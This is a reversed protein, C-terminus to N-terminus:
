VPYVVITIMLVDVIVPYSYFVVLSVSMIILSSDTLLPFNFIISFLYSFM